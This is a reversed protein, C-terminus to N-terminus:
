ETKVGQMTNEVKAEDHLPFTTKKKNVFRFESGSTIIQTISRGSAPTTLDYSWSWNTETVMWEGSTLAVRKSVAQGDDSVGTLLISRKKTEGLKSIEFISSEGTQLGEKLITVYTIEHGLALCAYGSLTQPAVVKFTEWNNKLAERYRSNTGGWSSNAETGSGYGTDDTIYDEVWYLEGADGFGTLEMESVKPLTISTGSGNAFIDDGGNGALNDYLGMENVSTFTLTSSRDLYIGGGMGNLATLAQQYGTTEKLSLSANAQNFRILGKGFDMEADKLYIGGGNTATNEEINGNMTLKLNGAVAVGGGAYAKNKSFMGGDFKVTKPETSTTTVYLGGGLNTAENQIINGKTITVSGEEVCFGGGNTAENESIVAEGSINFDGKQIYIGGGNNTAKNGTLLGDIVEISGYNMALGGGNNTATNSLIEPRTSSTGVYMNAVSNGPNIGVHIGGGITAQNGEIKGSHINVVVDNEGDEEKYKDDTKPYRDAYVDIGGGWQASNQLIEGGTMNVTIDGMIRELLLSIGGGYKISSNERVIGASINLTGKEVLIGGGSGYEIIGKNNTYGIARNNAILIGENSLEIGCNGQEQSIGGGGGAVNKSVVCTGNLRLTAGDNLNIAGGYRRARNSSLTGKNIIFSGNYVYVGGGNGLGSGNAWNDSIEGGNMEFYVNKKNLMVGGGSSSVNESIIGGNMYFKGSNVCVGGGLDRKGHYGEGSWFFPVNNSITGDNMTFVANPGEVHVGQGQRGSKNKIISASEGMTMKGNSIYIGGGGYSDGTNEPAYVAYCDAIEANGKIEFDAKELYVGGANNAKCGYIRGKDFLFDTVNDSNSGIVYVAGGLFGFKEEGKKTSIGELETQCYAINGGSINLYGGANVAIGGGCGYPIAINDTEARCGAITGGLFEMKGGNEILVAGGHNAVGGTLVGGAITVEEGDLGWDGTNSTSPRSDKVILTKGNKIEFLRGGGAKTLVYGNLDITLKNSSGITITNTLTTNGSLTIDANCEGGALTQAFLSLPNCLFLMWVLIWIMTQKHAM